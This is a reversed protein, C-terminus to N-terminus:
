CVNRNANPKISYHCCILMELFESDTMLQLNQMANKQQELTAKLDTVQATLDLQIQLHENQMSHLRSEYHRIEIDFSEQQRRLLENEKERKALKSALMDIIEQQVRQEGEDLSTGLVIDNNQVISKGPRLSLPNKPRKAGNIHSGLPPLVTVASNVNARSARSM